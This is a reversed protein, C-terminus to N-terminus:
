SLLLDNLDLLASPLLGGKPLNGLLNNLALTSMIEPAEKSAEDSTESDCKLTRYHSYRKARRICSM